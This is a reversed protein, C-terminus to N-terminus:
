FSSLPVLKSACQSSTIVDNCKLVETSLASSSSSWLLGPFSIQLLFQPCCTVSPSRHFCCQVVCCLAPHLFPTQLRHETWWWHHIMFWLWAWRIDIQRNQICIFASCELLTLPPETLTGYSRNSPTLLISSKVKIDCFYYNFPFNDTYVMCANINHPLAFVVVEIPLAMSDM